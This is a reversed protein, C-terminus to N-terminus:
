WRSMNRIHKKLYADSLEQPSISYNLMLDNFYMLVDCLEEVFDHRIEANEMIATDGYQKIVDAIEGAEGIMWLLTNRGTEPSLPTWKDRYKEQLERQIDQMEHLNLSKM